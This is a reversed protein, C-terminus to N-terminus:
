IKSPVKVEYDL